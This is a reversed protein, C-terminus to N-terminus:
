PDPAASQRQSSPRNPVTQDLKSQEPRPVGLQDCKFDFTLRSYHDGHIGHRHDPYVMMQFQKNHRQLADVLQLTNALHVNDDRGGHILLLIGHLRDAAAIVSSVEYGEPNNQPLDMFRETYISDYNTWATVPGGAIGACFKESHTMAYATLFGGYSYGSLGVRAPDAIGQDVLWDVADELDLTEQRGLQRYATWASAAGKGSASRPDVHLVVIGQEALLRDAMRGGSWRNEVVPSRPGGYTSIWVPYRRAAQYNTPYILCGELRQGDRTPIQVLELPPLDYRKLAPVPNRDLWRL